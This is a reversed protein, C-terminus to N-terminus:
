EFANFPVWVELYIRRKGMSCDVVLVHGFAMANQTFHHKQLHTLVGAFAQHPNDVIDDGMYLITHLSISPLLHIMRQGCADEATVLGPKAQAMFAVGDQDLAISIRTLPMDELWSQFTKCVDADQPILGDPRTDLLTVEPSYCVDFEDMHQPIREISDEFWKIGEQMMRYNEEKKAAEERKRALRQSIEPLTDGTLSFQKSVEKVSVGMARYKMYSMLRFVEFDTYTRHGSEEKTPSIIGEREFYHLASPTIGLTRAVDGINHKM